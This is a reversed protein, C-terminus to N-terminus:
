YTTITGPCSRARRPHKGRKWLICGKLFRARESLQTSISSGPYWNAPWQQPWSLPTALKATHISLLPYVPPTSLWHPDCIRYSSWNSTKPNFCLLEQSFVFYEHLGLQWPIILFPFIKCISFWSWRGWINDPWQIESKWLPQSKYLGRKRGSYKSQKWLSRSVLVKVPQFGEKM